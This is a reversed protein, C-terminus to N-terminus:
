NNKNKQMYALSILAILSIVILLMWLRINTMDGTPASNIAIVSEITATSGSVRITMQVTQGPVVTIVDGNKSLTSGAKLTFNKSAVTTGEENKIYVTHTGMELSNFSANGASDTRSTQVTSHMEIIHNALPSDDAGIIHTVIGVTDPTEDESSSNNNGNKDSETEPETRDPKTEDPKKDPKTTDEPDKSALVVRFNQSTRKLKEGRENDVNFEASITNRGNKTKDELTEKKIVIRTSGPEATYDVNEVLVEGNLWLKVFQGYEGESIFVEDEEFSDLVFDYASVQEGVYGIDGNEEPIIEYGDDSTNFVTENENDLVKITFEKTSPEFYDDRGYTATITFSYTGAQLPAGYIEGTSENLTMGSPIEGTYSFSVTNWDYMNNTTIMYSYPVYKVADELQETIISPNQARGSLKIIVPEQDDAYITLTGEIEGEGDPLLRIKAVNPLDSFSDNYIDTNSFPPPPLTGGNDGGITWYDDLKVNTANLEVRLGTLEEDGINAIFIDHKYEFYEDLFISRVPDNDDGGKPDTVYLKPGSALKIFSVNYNKTHEGNEDAIVTSFVKTTEVGTLQVPDGDHYEHGDIYVREVRAKENDAKEIIPIIQEASAEKIFITQYGYGYMTDMNLSKGNEVIYTPLANDNTDTAGVVRFWPDKSGIIPLETYSRFIEDDEKTKITVHYVDLDNAFSYDEFFITLVRGDTDYVAKYGQDSFLQSSIDTVGETESISNYYGEVVKIIKNNVNEHFSNIANLSLYYEDDSSYGPKLNFTYIEHTEDKLDFSYKIDDSVIIKQGNEDLFMEGTLESASSTLLFTLIIVDAQVNNIYYEVVFSVAYDSMHYGANLESMNQRFLQDSVDNRQGHLYDSLEYAKLSIDPRVNIKSTAGLYLNTYNGEDVFYAYSWNPVDNGNIDSVGSESLVFKTKNPEVKSRSGNGPQVYLEFSYEESLKESIYVTITYKINNPNLQNGSGVILILQYDLINKANSLDITEGNGISYKNFEDVGDLEDKAYRWVSTAGTPLSISNGNEDVMSSLITDLSMNKLEEDTKGNLILFAKVETLPMMSKLATKSESDTTNEIEEDNGVVNEDEKDGDEITEQSLDNSDNPKELDASNEEIETAIESQESTVGDNAADNDSTIEIANEETEEDSESTQTDISEENEIKEENKADDISDDEIEMANAISSRGGFSSLSATILVIVLLVNLIRKWKKM